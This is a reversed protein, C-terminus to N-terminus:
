STVARFAAQVAKVLSPHLMGLRPVQGHPAGPPVSFWEASFPLDLTQRLDFKTDYSLGAALFAAPNCHRQIAFEGSHLSTVTQSTGYVVRVTFQPATDDFVVLILAPRPKPRPHIDDPFHCCVIEGAAPEPWWAGTM